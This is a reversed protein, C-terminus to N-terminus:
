LEGEDWGSAPRRPAASVSGARLAARVLESIDAVKRDGFFDAIALEVGFASKIGARVDVAALSDFGLDCLASGPAVAAEDKELAVAIIRRVAGAVGEADEPSRFPAGAAGDMSRARRRSASKRDEVSAGAGPKRGSAAFLQRYFSHSESEFLARWKEAIADLKERALFGDEVLRASIGVGEAQLFADDGAHYSHVGVVDLAIDSYGAEDLLWPLERGIRPKGGEAERSRCYADYLDDLEPIRPFTQLHMDFDNDVFVAAGEPKLLRFVERMAAVPDPLHEVVLRVLIFDFSDDPLGTDLISREVVEFRGGRGEEATERAVMALAPDIELGVARCSPLADSIRGIMFGPGCGCELVSMGDGLGLSRYLAYEKEWFLEVQGRLRRIESSTDTSFTKLQYSGSHFM